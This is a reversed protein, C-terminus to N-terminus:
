FIKRQGAAVPLTNNNKRYLHVVINIQILVDSQKEVVASRAECAPSGTTLPSLGGGTGPVTIKLPGTRGIGLVNRMEASGIDASLSEAGAAAPNSPLFTTESTDSVKLVGELSSGSTDSVQGSPLFGSESGDSTLGSSLFVSESTDSMMLVGEFSSESTDSV